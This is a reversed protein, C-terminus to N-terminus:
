KREAIEQILPKWQAIERVIQARYQEPTTKVTDAGAKRMIEKVEPDDAMKILIEALKRIIPEPTKSPAMIGNWTEVVFDPLVAEQVTPLDPFYPSRKLSTVALGRVSGAQVQPLGDTMNAFSFDVEGSVVAATSNGGSKFPIHVVKIGTRAQFLEVSYHTLGGAGSSGYNLKGPNAYSVLEALTKVPLDKNAIVVQAISSVIGVPTLDRLPDYGVKQNPDFPGISIAGISCVCFTYGDAAANVVAQTGVIGGAGARNDVIVPKGLAKEVYRATLRAVLDTYGGAGYPVVFTIPRTPWADQARLMSPALAIGLSLVLGAVHKM